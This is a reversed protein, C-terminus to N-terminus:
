APTSPTLAPLMDGPTRVTMLSIGTTINGTMNFNGATLFKYEDWGTLSPPLCEDTEKNAFVPAM